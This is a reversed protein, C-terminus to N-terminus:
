DPELSSRVVDVLGAVATRPVDAAAALARVCYAALVAPTVDNRAGGADAGQGIIRTLLQAVEREAATVEFGTHVLRDIDHDGHHARAHCIEGYAKLVAALRETPEGTGAAIADLEALHEAVHRRHQAILMSEVDSFYKYVTPRSVGAAAAVNSMSVALPGRQQALSWAAEAIASETSQKHADVSHKWHSAM